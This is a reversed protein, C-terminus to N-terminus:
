EKLSLVLLLVVSGVSAPWVCVVVLVVVSLSGTGLLLLHGNVQARGERGKATCGCGLLLHRHGVLGNLLHREGALGDSPGGKGLLHQVRKGRLLLLLLESLVEVRSDGDVVWGEGAADHAHDEVGVSLVLNQGVEVVLGRELGANSLGHLCEFIVLALGGSGASGSLSCADAVRQMMCLGRILDSCDAQM